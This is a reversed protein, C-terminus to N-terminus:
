GCLRAALFMMKFFKLNSWFSLSVPLIKECDGSIENLRSLFMPFKRTLLTCLDPSWGPVKFHARLRHLVQGKMQLASLTFMCRVIAVFLLKILGVLLISFKKLGCKFINHFFETPSQLFCYKECTWFIEFNTGFNWQHEEKEWLITWSM